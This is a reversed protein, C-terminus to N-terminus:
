SIRAPTMAFDSAGFEIRDIDAPLKERHGDKYVIAAPPKIDIRTIEAMSLSQRHGDKYVIVISQRDDALAPQTAATFAVLLTVAATVGRTLSRM